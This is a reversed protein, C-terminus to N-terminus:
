DAPRAASNAASSALFEEYGQWYGAAFLTRDSDTAWRGGAIRIPSGQKAALRGLYLGDRFAASADRSADAKIVARASPQSDHLIAKLTATAGAFLALVAIYLSLKTM